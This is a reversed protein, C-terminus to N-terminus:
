DCPCSNRLILLLTLLRTRISVPLGCIQSPSINAGCSACSVLVAAIIAGVYRATPAARVVCTDRSTVPHELTLVYKWGTLDPTSSCM